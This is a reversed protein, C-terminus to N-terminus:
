SLGATHTARCDHKLPQQILTGSVTELSFLVGNQKKSSLKAANQNGYKEYRFQLELHHVAAKLWPASDVLFVTNGVAYKERLGRLFMETLTITRTSYISFNM